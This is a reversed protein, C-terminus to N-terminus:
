ESRLSGVGKRERESRRVRRSACHLFREEIKAVLFTLTGWGRKEPPPDEGIYPRLVAAGWNRVISGTTDDEEESTVVWRLVWGADNM